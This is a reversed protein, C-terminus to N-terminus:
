TSYPVVLVAAPPNPLLPLTSLLLTAGGVRLLAFLRPTFLDLHIHTRRPTHTFHPTHQTPSVRPTLTARRTPSTHPTSFTVPGSHSHADEEPPRNVICLRPLRTLHTISSTTTSSSSFTTTTTTTSRESWFYANSLWIDTLVIETERGREPSPLAHRRQKSIRARTNVM